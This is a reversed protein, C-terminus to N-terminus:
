VNDKKNLIAVGICVVLYVGLVLISINKVFSFSISYRVAALLDFFPLSVIILTAIVKKKTPLFFNM